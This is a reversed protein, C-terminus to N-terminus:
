LVSPLNAIVDINEMELLNWDLTKNKFALLFKKENDTM